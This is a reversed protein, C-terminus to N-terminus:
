TTICSSNEYIVSAHILLPRDCGDNAEVFEDIRDYLYLQPLSSVLDRATIGLRQWRSCLSYLDLAIDKFRRQDFCSLHRIQTERDVGAYCRKRKM